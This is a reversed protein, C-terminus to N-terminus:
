GSGNLAERIAELYRGVAIREDYEAEIKRRGAAGMASRRAKGGRIVELMADALSRPDRVACLLGNVGHDVVQRCGPVDTTILPKAMAAGELLVRPLGERYSPLVV